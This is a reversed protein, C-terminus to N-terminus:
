ILQVSDITNMLLIGVEVHCCIDHDRARMRRPQWKRGAMTNAKAGCARRFADMQSSRRKRSLPVTRGEDSRLKLSLRTGLVIPPLLTIDFVFKSSTCGRQAEASRNRASCSATVWDAAV